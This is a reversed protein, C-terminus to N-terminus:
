KYGELNENQKTMHKLVRAQTARICNPCTARSTPIGSSYMPLPFFAPIKNWINM